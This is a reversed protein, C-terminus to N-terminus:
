LNSAAIGEQELVRAVTDRTIEAIKNGIETLAKKDEAGIGEFNFSNNNVINTVKARVTSRTDATATRTPATSYAHGMSLKRGGGGLLSYGLLGIGLAQKFKPNQLFDFFGRKKDLSDQSQSKYYDAPAIPITQKRNPYLGGTTSTITAFRQSSSIAANTQAQGLASSIKNAHYDAGNKIALETKSAGDSFVREIRVTDFANGLIVDLGTYNLIQNTVGEALADIFANRIGEKFKDFFSSIDQEKISDALSQSMIQGVKKAEKEVDKSIITDGKKGTNNKENDRIDSLIRKAKERADKLNSLYAQVAKKSAEDVFDVNKGIDTILDELYKDLEEFSMGEKLAGLLIGPAGAGLKILGILASTNEWLQRIAAGSGIANLQMDELTSNIDKLAGVFNNTDTIGTAFNAILQAIQEKMIKLQAEPTNNRIDLLKDVMGSADGNFEKIVKELKDLEEIFIRVSRRSRIGFIENLKEVIQPSDLGLAQFKRVVQKFINFWDVTDQKSFTTGLLKDIKPLKSALEDLSRGFLRGARGGELLNDSSVSIIALTEEFSLGFNKAQTGLNAMAQEVNNLEIRHNSWALALTDTIKEMKEQANNVGSVRDGLVNYIGSVLKGTSIIDGYTANALKAVPVSAALSSKLDIGATGMRHFAETVDTITGINKRAFEKASDGLVIMAARLEEATGRAVASARAIGNTLEIINQFGSKIASILARITARVLMWVPLVIAVRMLAKQFQKGIGIGKKMYENMNLIQYRVKNFDDGAKNVTGAIRLFQNDNIKLTKTVTQGAQALGINEKKLKELTSYVKESGKERYIYEIIKQAM